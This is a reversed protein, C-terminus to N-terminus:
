NSVLAENLVQLTQESHEANLLTTLSELTAHM